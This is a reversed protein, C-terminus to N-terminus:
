ANVLGYNGLKCNVGNALVRHNSPLETLLWLVRGRGGWLSARNYKIRVKKLRNKALTMINSKTDTVIAGAPCTFECATTFKGERLTAFKAGYGFRDFCHDCKIFRGLDDSYRPVQYPCGYALFFAEREEDTPIYSNPWKGPTSPWMKQKDKRSMQVNAPICNEDFVVFGQETKSIGKPCKTMCVARNCHQCQRKLSAWMLKGQSLMEQFNIFTLTRGSLDPPNTYSGTFSTTEAPLSHWQKCAVQCAKCGICKSQDIFMMVAAM